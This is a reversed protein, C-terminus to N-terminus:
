VIILFFYLILVEVCLIDIGAFPIAPNFCFQFESKTEPKRTKKNANGKLKPIAFALPNGAAIPTKVAM